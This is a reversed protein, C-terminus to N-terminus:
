VNETIRIRLKLRARFKLPEFESAHQHSTRQDFLDLFANGVAVNVIRSDSQIVTHTHTHTHALSNIRCACYCVPRNEECLVSLQKGRKIGGTAQTKNKFKQTNRWTCYPCARFEVYVRENYEM